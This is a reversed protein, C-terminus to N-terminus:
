LIIFFLLFHFILSRALPFFDYGNQNLILPVDHISVWGSIACFIFLIDWILEIGISPLVLLIFLLM